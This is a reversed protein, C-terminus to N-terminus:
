LGGSQNSSCTGSAHRKIWSCSRTEGGGNAVSSSGASDAFGPPRTRMWHLVPLWCPTITAIAYMITLIPKAGHFASLTHAKARACTHRALRHRACM